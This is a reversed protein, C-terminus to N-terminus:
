AQDPEWADGRESPNDFEEDSVFGEAQVVPETTMDAGLTDHVTEDTSVAKAFDTKMPAYKLVRKLVTKKAMEDYSTVWPGNGVSKSYKRAHADIDDKSMVSFGYGGDKGRWYAYYAIVPGRDGKILPKHVLKSELGLEYEFTDNEHVAEAGITSIEGSRYALDILGKYGLQFQCQNGYPILYAQNM